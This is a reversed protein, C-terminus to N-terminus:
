VQENQKDEAKQNSQVQIPKQQKEPAMPEFALEEPKVLYPSSKATAEAEKVSIRVEKADIGSTANLQKKIHKQLSSLALPININNPLDVMLDITVGGRQNNVRMSQMKIDNHQSLSKQVISEIASVSIRMEGTPTKQVVYDHKGGRMKHPLTFLFASIILAVAGILLMVLRTSTFFGEGEVSIPLSKFQFSAVLVIVGIVFVLVASVLLALRHWIKLRAEM